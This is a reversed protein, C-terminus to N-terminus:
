EERRLLLDIHTLAAARRTDWEDAHAPDAAVAGMLLAKVEGLVLETERREREAQADWEAEIESLDVGEEGQEMEEIGVMLDVAQMLARQRNPDDTLAHLTGQLTKLQEYHEYPLIALLPRGYRTVAIAQDHNTAMQEPLSSLAAQTESISLLRETQESM